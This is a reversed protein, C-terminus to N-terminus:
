SDFYVEKEQPQKDSVISIEKSTASAFDRIFLLRLSSSNIEGQLKHNLPICGM